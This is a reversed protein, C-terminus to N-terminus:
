ISLFCIFKHFFSWDSFSLFVAIFCFQYKICSSSMETFIYFQLPAFDLFYIFKIFNETCLQITSHEQALSLSKLVFLIMSLSRGQFDTLLHFEKLVGELRNQLPIFSTNWGWYHHNFLIFKPAVRGVQFDSFLFCNFILYFFFGLPLWIINQSSISSIFLDNLM